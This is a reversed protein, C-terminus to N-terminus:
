VLGNFGGVMTGSLGVWMEPTTSEDARSLAASDRARHRAPGAGPFRTGLEFSALSSAESSTKCIGYSGHITHTSTHWLQNLWSCLM